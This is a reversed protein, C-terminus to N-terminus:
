PCSGGLVIMDVVSLLRESVLSSGVKIRQIGTAAGSIASNGVSAADKM